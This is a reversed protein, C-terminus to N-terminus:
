KSTNATVNFTVKSTSANEYRDIIQVAITHEGSALGHLELRYTEKPADSLLGEPFAIQWEGGDLSYQARAIAGSSSIGEFSVKVTPSAQQARL